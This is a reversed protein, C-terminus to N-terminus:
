TLGFVPNMICVNFCANSNRATRQGQRCYFWSEETKQGNATVAATSLNTDSYNEETHTVFTNVTSM